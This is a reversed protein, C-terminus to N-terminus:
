FEFSPRSFGWNAHNPEHTVQEYLEDPL